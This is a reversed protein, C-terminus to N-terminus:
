NVQATLSSPAALPTSTQSQFPYAGPDWSAGSPRGLGIGSSGVGVSAPMGTDLPTLRLLTLNAGLGLVSSGAQLRYNPSLNPDSEKGTTDKGAQQWQPFDYTTAAGWSFAGVGPQGMGRGGYYFNNTATLNSLPTSNAEYYWEGNSLFINNEITYVQTTDGDAYISFNFGVITNNYIYHPGLPNGDASHFYIGQGRTATNGTGVLLNNFISCSSGTGSGGYTCFIFGTPSANVFDGHFYNDYIYPRVISPGDSFAIIGDLHYPTNTPYFWNSYGSIDNGYINAYGSGNISMQWAHDSVTNDFYNIGDSAQSGSCATPGNTYSASATDSWIGVHAANLTDNCVEINTSLSDTRIDASNFGPQSNPESSTNVYISRVTLNKVMLHDGSLYIGTSAQQNSLSSGNALNQVVGVGQGDVTIYQRKYVDIAGGCPDRFCASAPAAWLFYPSELTAGAADLKIVIPNGNTGSGQVIFGASGAPFNFTGCLLVTTGPGIQGGGSGWNASNNFFSPTQVNATCNGVPDGDSTINVQTASGHARGTSLYLGAIMSFCICITRKFSYAREHAADYIAM